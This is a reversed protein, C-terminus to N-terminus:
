VGYGNLQVGKDSVSKRRARLGIDSGKGVRGGRYLEGLLAVVLIWPMGGLGGGDNFSSNGVSAAFM